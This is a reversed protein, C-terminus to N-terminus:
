ITLLTLLGLVRLMFPFLHENPFTDDMPSPEDHLQLRSLFDVVVNECSPNDLITSDFEQLLLLWKIARGIVIPNNVLFHITFHDIHIFVKYGINYHYFKNIAYAVVLYENKTVTYNVETHTHFPLEWNLGHLM